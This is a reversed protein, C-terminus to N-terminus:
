QNIKSSEQQSFHINTINQIDVTQIVYKHLICQYNQVDVSQM